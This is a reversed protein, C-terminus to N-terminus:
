TIFLKEKSKKRSLEYIFNNNKTKINVLVLHTNTQIVRKYM